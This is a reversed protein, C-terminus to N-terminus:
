ARGHLKRRCVATTVGTQRARDMFKKVRSKEFLDEEAAGLLRTVLGEVVDTLDEM